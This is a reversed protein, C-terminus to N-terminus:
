RGGGAMKDVHRRVDVRPHALMRRRSMTILCGHDCVFLEETRGALLANVGGHIVAVIQMKESVRIAHISFEGLCLASRVFEGGM